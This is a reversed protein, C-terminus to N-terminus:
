NNKGLFGLEKCKGVGFLDGGSLNNPYLTFGIEIKKGKYGIGILHVEHKLSVRSFISDLVRTFGTGPTYFGVALIKM